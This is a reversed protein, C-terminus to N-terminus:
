LARVVEAEAVFEPDITVGFGPGSPVRVVGDESRLPRPRRQPRPDRREGQVRHVPGPEPHVLRLPRRRPLRPGLGVHAAHLADRRRRGDPRGADLPHLRRLLAPRAPRHRRGPQRDDLPVPGRQVGARRRRRSHAARRRGGEHGRPPRVPLAGRLLRLRVGGDAPRDRDGERRRLLQERRRLADHRPRVGRPGDPDADRHPRAALRRRRAEDPRRPPVEAGEGRERRRDAQPGRGGGRAHQGPQRQGPLGRDRAPPRRGAPRRDAQRDAQRAPRPGRVGGRGRLGLPRAGPVQLQRRPPVAGLAPRRAAPRGQRRLLPRGSERLDPLHPDPADLEAVAMGEAGDRDRVRVLFERGNRLLEMSAIEVPDSLDVRLVPERAVRELEEM